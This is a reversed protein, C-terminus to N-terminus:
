RADQGLAFQGEATAAPSAHGGARLAAELRARQGDPPPGTHISALHRWAEWLTPDIDLAHEFRQRARAIEGLSVLAPVRIRLAAAAVGREIELARELSARARARPRKAGLSLQGLAYHTLWYTTMRAFRTSSSPELAEDFQGTATLALGFYTRLLTDGPREALM